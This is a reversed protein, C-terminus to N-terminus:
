RDYGTSAKTTHAGNWNNSRSRTSADEESQQTLFSSQRNLAISNLSALSILDMNDSRTNNSNVNGVSFMTGFPRQPKPSILKPLDRTNLNVSSFSTSRPLSEFPDVKSKLNMLIADTSLHSSNSFNFSRQSNM